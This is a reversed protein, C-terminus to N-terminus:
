WETKIKKEKVLSPTGPDEICSSFGPDEPRTVPVLHHLFHNLGHGTIPQSGDTHSESVEGAAGLRVPVVLVVDQRVQGADTNNANFVRYPWLYM